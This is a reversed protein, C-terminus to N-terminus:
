SHEEESTGTETRLSTEAQPALSAAAARRCSDLDIKLAQAFFDIYRELKFADARRDYTTDGSWGEENARRSFDAWFEKSLSPFLKGPIQSITIKSPDCLFKKLFDEVLNSDAQPDLLSDYILREGKSLKDYFLHERDALFACFNTWKERFLSEM